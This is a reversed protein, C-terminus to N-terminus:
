NEMTARWEELVDLIEREVVDSRNTTCIVAEAGADRAQASNKASDASSVLAIKAAPNKKKLYAIVSPGNGSPIYYDIFAAFINPHGDILRIADETTEAILLEGDFGARTLMSRLFHIKGPSDDAILFSTM